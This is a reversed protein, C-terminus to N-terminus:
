PCTRVRNILQIVEANEKESYQIDNNHSLKTFVNGIFITSMPRQFQNLSLGKVIEWMADALSAKNAVM